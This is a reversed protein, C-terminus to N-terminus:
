APRSPHLQLPVCPDLNGHWDIASLRWGARALSVWRPSTPGTWRRRLMGCGCRCMLADAAMSARVTRSMAVRTETANARTIQNGMLLAMLRTM